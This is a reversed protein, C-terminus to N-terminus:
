PYLEDMSLEGDRIATIQERTLEPMVYHDAVYVCFQDGSRRGSAHSRLRTALVAVPRTGDPSGRRVRTRWRRGLHQLRRRRDAPHRRRPDRVWLLPPSPGNALQRLEEDVTPVRTELRPSGASQYRVVTTMGQVTTM